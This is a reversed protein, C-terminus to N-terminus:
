ERKLKELALRQKAGEEAQATVKDQSKLDITVKNIAGTFTFPVEYSTNVATGTDEGIDFSEVNLTFRIAATHEIRGQAVQQGDVSLTGMGGKGIGGGDYKFDFLVVHHGASLPQPAEINYHDLFGFTYHFVPKGKLLYLAWGNSFGGMTAIMGEAGVEPINVDATLRWSKNKVDAAAPEPIRKEGQYYTFSTRNGTLSPRNKPDARTVKNNDLPFVNYKAADAYFLKKMSALKDPMQSALDHAESFDRGVNYLEWKYGTIVDPPNAAALDWPALPPTTAAVWGDSYIARYGVIEFYQTKHTSARDKNAFTYVMSVGEMPTQKAGNVMTPQAVHVADLITPTIDIVHHWQSRLGGDDTVHGPWSIVMGNRTGGYHSAVQKAWQFPTNMAHAWGVPYHPYTKVSGLDDMYPLMQEVTFPPRDIQADANMSGELGGEASAGNDGCIYIILTNNTIGLDDIAKIVRGANYDTQELYGAYVEMMHAFLKKEDANQSDWAKVGPPRPTLVTDQPVVGLQKQRALTQERVADWGIDFKGKYKEIWEKRPHHPTHTAGPAYYVFFPKDPTVSKQMRIYKIAQDALDYDLNYDPKGVYPEIPNTGDFIFPRWQNMEGGLFGYFKEFGLSTPWRDFPGSQSAEWDSVNHNKGFWATNWGNQRLIEAITATEPGMLSDYGPFGTAMEGIAGSHVVHHNRGTILAARTPSCLATTHFQNYRLGRRALAELTPTNVPGGFTSSAGFGVDDLLILLINPARAPATPPTPFWPKSDAARETIKGKFPQHPPPLVTEPKKTQAWVSGATGAVVL